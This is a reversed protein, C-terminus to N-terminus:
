VFRGKDDRVRSANHDTIHQSATKIKLNKVRNDTKIENIHHVVENPELRRGIASEMVIDHEYAYAHTCKPSGFGRHHDKSVRVIVYGHSSLLTGKNWRGNNSGRAHNGHRGPPPKPFLIRQRERYRKSRENAKRRAIDKDKYPM